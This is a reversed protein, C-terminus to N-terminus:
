DTGVALPRKRLVLFFLTPAGLGATLVGVPLERDIFLLRALADCLVLFAGGGLWSLAFFSPRDGAVILRILHPVLLGVFAIPGALAVCAAVGLCGGVLVVRRVRGTQVGVTRAWEEGLSLALLARRQSLVAFACALAPFLVLLVRDYGVQPLQGLSWQAAAFLANADAIAHLGQSLAGTGLTVAIGALLIDEVRARSRAAVSLVLFSAGCAGLFAFATAAPLLASGRLGFVLSLLAGLAAGATTGVTSPTALPNRFLTQFAAGVLSLTSGILFGILLRPVRLQYIVFDRASASVQPSAANMPGLFLHAFAGISLFILCALAAILPRKM